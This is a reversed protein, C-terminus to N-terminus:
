DNHCCECAKGKCITTTCNYGNSANVHKDCEVITLCRCEEKYARGIDECLPQKTFSYGSENGKCVVINCPYGPYKKAYQKCNKTMSRDEELVGCGIDDCLPQGKFNSICDNGKRIKATYLYRRPENKNNECEEPTLCSDGTQDEYGIDESVPTDIYTCDCYKGILHEDIYLYIPFQKTHQNCNNKTIYTGEEHVNCGIDESM